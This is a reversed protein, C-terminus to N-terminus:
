TIATPPHQCSSQWSHHLADGRSGAAISCNAGSRAATHHVPAQRLPLPAYSCHRDSAQCAAQWLCCLSSLCAIHLSHAPTTSPNLSIATQEPQCPASHLPLTPLSRPLRQGPTGPLQGTLVGPAWSRHRYGLVQTRTSHGCWTSTQRSQAKHPTPVGGPIAWRLSRLALGHCCAGAQPTTLM